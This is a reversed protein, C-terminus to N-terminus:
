LLCVDTYKWLWINISIHIPHKRHCKREYLIHFLDSVPREENEIRLLNIRDVIYDLFIQVIFVCKINDIPIEYMFKVRYNCQFFFHQKAFCLAFSRHHFWLPSFIHEKQAARGVFFRPRQFVFKMKFSYRKRVNTHKLQVGLYQAAAFPLLCVKKESCSLLGYGSGYRWIMNITMLHKWNNWTVNLVTWLESAFFTILISLTKM